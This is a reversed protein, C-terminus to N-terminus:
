KILHGICSSKLIATKIFNVAADHGEKCQIEYITDKPCKIAEEWQDLTLKVYFVQYTKKKREENTM